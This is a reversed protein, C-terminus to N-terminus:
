RHCRCVLRGSLPVAPEASLPEFAPRFTGHPRHFRATAQRGTTETKESSPANRARRSTPVSRVVSADGDTEPASPSAIRPFVPSLPPPSILSNKRTKMGGTRNGCATECESRPRFRCAANEPARRKPCGTPLADATKPLLRGGNAYKRGKAPRSIDGPLAGLVAPAPLRM